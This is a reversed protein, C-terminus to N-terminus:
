RPPLWAAYGAAMDIWRALEADDAIGDADITVFGRVVRGKRQLPRVHEEALIRDREGLDVRVLLKDGLAGCAINGNVLWGTTGYIEGETVDDRDGLTERIRAALEESDGIVDADPAALKVAPRTEAPAPRRPIQPAAQEASAAPRPAPARGDKRERRAEEVARQAGTLWAAYRIEDRIQKRTLEDHVVRTYQNRWSIGEFLYARRYEDADESFAFSEMEEVLMKATNARANARRNRLGVERECGCSCRM